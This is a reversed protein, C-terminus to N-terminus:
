SNEGAENILKEIEFKLSREFRTMDFEPMGDDEPFNCSSSNLLVYYDKEIMKEALFKAASAESTFKTAEKNVNISIKGSNISIYFM